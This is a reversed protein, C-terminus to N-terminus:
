PLLGIVPPLSPPSGAPCGPSLIESGLTGSRVVYTNCEGGYEAWVLAIYEDGVIVDARMGTFDPSCWRNTHVLVGPAIIRVFEMHFTDCSGNFSDAAVCVGANCEPVLGPPAAGTLPLLLVAALALLAARMPSARRPSVM